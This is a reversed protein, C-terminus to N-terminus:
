NWIRHETVLFVISTWCTMPTVKCRRCFIRRLISHWGNRSDQSACLISFPPVTYELRTCINEWYM